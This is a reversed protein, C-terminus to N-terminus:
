NPRVGSSIKIPKTTPQAIVTVHSNINDANSCQTHESSSSENTRDTMQFRIWYHSVKKREFKLYVQLFNDLLTGVVQTSLAHNSDTTITNEVPLT